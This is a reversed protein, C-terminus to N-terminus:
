FDVASLKKQVGRESATALLTGTPDFAIVSLAVDVTARFHSIVRFHQHISGSKKKLGRGQVRENGGM